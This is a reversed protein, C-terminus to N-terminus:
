KKRGLARRERNMMAQMLYPVQTMVILPPFLRQLRFIWLVKQCKSSLCTCVHIWGVYHGIDKFLIDDINFYRFKGTLVNGTSIYMQGDLEITHSSGEVARPNELVIPGTLTVTMLDLQNSSSKLPMRPPSPKYVNLTYM